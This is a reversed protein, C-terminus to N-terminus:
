FPFATIFSKGQVVLRMQKAPPNRMRGGDRGGIYGIPKNFPVEYVTRGDEQSARVGKAGQKGRAYADDIWKLVQEMDGDFVGHKGPRNPMDELHRELHKLRHGEESGPGYQLGSPSLYRDGGVEQLIGFRLESKSEGDSRGKADNKAVVGGPKRRDKAENAAVERNAVERNAVERNAVGRDPKEREAIERNAIERNAIESHPVERDLTERDLAEPKAVKRDPTSPQITPSTPPKKPSPKSEDEGLLSALSPLNWGLRSNAFPQTLGYIILCAVIVLAWKVPLGAASRKPSIGSM